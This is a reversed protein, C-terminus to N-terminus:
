SRWEAHWKACWRDMVEAAHAETVARLDYEDAHATFTHTPHWALDRWLAEDATIGNPQRVRRLLSLPADPPYGDDVRVFYEAVVPEAHPTTASRAARELEDGPRPTAATFDCSEMHWLFEPEPGLGREVVEAALATPWVWVGDTRLAPGATTGGELFKAIRRRRGPDAIRPRDPSHYPRVGGVAYDRIRRM